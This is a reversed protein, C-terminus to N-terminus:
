TEHARLHTYSVPTSTCRQGCTGVAGFVAGTLVLNMDANPTVIMANNGGLELLSNGLRSAVEAAVIKGMRTSGTASILPVRSDKTMYEGIEYNGNVLCAVGEPVKNAKLVKHLLNQCAVGCMPAKESPKWVATNGCVIAVM